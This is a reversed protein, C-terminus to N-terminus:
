EKLSIFERSLRLYDEESHCNVGKTEWWTLCKEHMPCTLCLSGCDSEESVLKMLSQFWFQSEQDVYNKYRYRKAM